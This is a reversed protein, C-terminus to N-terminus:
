LVMGLHSAKVSGHETLLFLCVCVCVCVCEDACDAAGSLKSAAISMSRETVRKASEKLKLWINQYNKSLMSDTEYYKSVKRNKVM